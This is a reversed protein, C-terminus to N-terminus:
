CANMICVIPLVSSSPHALLDLFVCGGPRGSLHAGSQRGSAESYTKNSLRKKCPQLCCCAHTTLLSHVPMAIICIHNLRCHRQFVGKIEESQVLQSRELASKSGASAREAKDKSVRCAALEESLTAIQNRLEVMLVGSEETNRAQQKTLKSRARLDDTEVKAAALQNQLTQITTKNQLLKVRENDTLERSRRIEDLTDNKVQFLKGKLWEIQWQKFSLRLQLEM